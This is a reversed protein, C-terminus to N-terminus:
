RRVRRKSFAPGSALLPLGVGLLLVALLPAKDGIAPAAITASSIFVFAAGAQGLAGIVATGGSLAVSYGFMAVSGELEQQQSWATGSRVFGYAAGAQANAGVKHQYAGVLANGASVAVSYGFFDNAAADSATLEQQMSWTGASETWVYAAGASTAAGVNHQYAGVIATTGSVSVSYGFFDSIAGDSATLEQQMSWTGATEIWVYAAGASVNTGVDHQYAGVIAVPGSVSVSDGFLDGTHGDSATFEAQQSWAGTGGQTFVYAAGAEGHGDVEHFPAGVVATTGTVAVSNGFSDSAAADSATLEQQLSWTGNGALTFVYAAGAEDHGGVTHFPAGVVAIAGSMAVSQGFWDEMAADSATLEQQLTWTTGSQAWIYAAGAQALGNVAHKPAGVVALTGSIAVSEGFWDGTAGDTAGNTDATLEEQLTWVVPDISVPYSAGADDIVLAVGRGHVEMHGSLARGDADVAVLDRYGGKLHGKDDKLLVRDDAGAVLEPALGTFFVDVVLPGSGKPRTGVRYSQELGLSGALYREVVADDRTLVLEQGEAHRELVRLSGAGESRGISATEVDLDFAGAPATFPSSVRVGRETARVKAGTAAAGEHSELAGTGGVTFDHGPATQRARMVAM